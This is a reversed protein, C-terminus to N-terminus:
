KQPDIKDAYVILQHAYRRAEDPTMHVHAANQIYDDSTFNTIVEKENPSVMVVVHSKGFALKQHTVIRM